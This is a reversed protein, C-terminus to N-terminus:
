AAPTNEALAPVRVSPRAPGAPGASQKENPLPFHPGSESLDAIPMQEEPTSPREAMFSGGQFFRLVATLNIHKAQPGTQSFSVGVLVRDAPGALRCRRLDLSTVDSARVCVARQLCVGSPDAEDRADEAIELPKVVPEVARIGVSGPLTVQRRVQAGVKEFRVDFPRPATRGLLVGRGARYGHPCTRSVRPWSLRPPACMQPPRQPDGGPTPEPDVRGAARRWAEGCLPVGRLDEWTRLHKPWSPRRALVNEAFEQWDTNETQKQQRNVQVDVRGDTRVDREEGSARGVEWRAAM